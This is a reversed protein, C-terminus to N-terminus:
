EPSANMAWQVLFIGALCVVAGFFQLPSPIEKLIVIGLMTAVVPQGVLAVSAIAAPLHGLAHNVLLWAIVQSSLAMWFIMWLNEPSLPQSFLNAALAASLLTLAGSISVIWSYRLAPMYKRAQQTILIYVAYSLGSAIGLLNGTTQSNTNYLIDWGIMLAAGLIAIFLGLWYRGSRKEKLVLWSFLGVWVPATNDLLTVASATTYNLASCWLSINIGFAVGGLAAWILGKKVPHKSQDIEKESVKQSRRQWVLLSLMLSAFFLRYFGVLIGNASVQKVFM